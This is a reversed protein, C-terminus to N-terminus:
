KDVFLFELNVKLIESVPLMMLLIMNLSASPVMVAKYMPEVTEKPLM